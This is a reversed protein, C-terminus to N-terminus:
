GKTGLHETHDHQVLNQDTDHPSDSVELHQGLPGSPVRGANGPPHMRELWELLFGEIREFSPVVGKENSRGTTALTENELSVDLDVPTMDPRQNYSRKRGEDALVLGSKSLQPNGDIRFGSRPDPDQTGFTQEPRRHPSDTIPARIQHHHILGVADLLPPIM